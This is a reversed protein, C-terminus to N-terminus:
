QPYQRKQVTDSKILEVVDNIAKKHKLPTWGIFNIDNKRTNINLNLEKIVILNGLYLLQSKVLLNNCLTVIIKCLLM